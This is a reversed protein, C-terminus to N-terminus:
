DEENERLLWILCELRDPFEETWADGTTNDVGIIETGTDCLFLGRPERTEIVAKLKEQGIESYWKHTEHVTGCNPCMRIPTGGNIAVRALVEEGCDPCIMKEFISKWPSSFVRDNTKLLAKLETINVM